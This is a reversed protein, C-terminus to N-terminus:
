EIQLRMAVRVIGDEEIAEGERIFGFKEYMGVASVVASVTFIGDFGLDICSKKAVDWLSRAIGEGQVNESVFLKLLHKNGRTAVVGLIKGGNEYVHYRCDDHMNERVQDFDLAKLLKQFGKKSLEPALFKLSVSKMLYSIAEIDEDTAQRISM